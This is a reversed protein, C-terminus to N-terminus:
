KDLFERVISSAERPYVELFWHGWEPKDLFIGNKILNKARLTPVRIDDSVCIVLVKKDLCSLRKGMDHEFVAKHAWWAREFDRISDAVYRGIMEYSVGKTKWESWGNWKQIIHAGESDFPVPGFRKKQKELEADSYVSAGYLILRRVKDPRLFALEVALRSGTHAGFLDVENFEFNDIVESLVRVYEEIKIPKDPPSSNGYGPTDVAISIRDKGMELIFENYMRASGPSLHFCILPLKSSLDSGSKYGHLQGWKNNIYFGKISNNKNKLM